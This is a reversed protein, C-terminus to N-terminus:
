YFPLVQFISVHQVAADIYAIASIPFPTTERVPFSDLRQRAFAQGGSSAQEPPKGKRTM